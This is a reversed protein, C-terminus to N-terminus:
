SPWWRALRPGTRSIYAGGFPRRAFELQYSDPGPVHSIANAVLESVVLQADESISPLGWRALVADTVARPEDTARGHGRRASGGGRAMSTPEKRAVATSDVLLAGRYNALV